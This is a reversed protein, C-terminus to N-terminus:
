QSWFFPGNRGFVNNKGFFNSFEQSFKRERTRQNRTKKRSNLSIKWFFTVNVFPETQASASHQCNPNVSAPSFPVNQGTYKASPASSFSSPNLILKHFSHQILSTKNKKNYFKCSMLVWIRVLKYVESSFAKWPKLTPPKTFMKPDAAGKDSTRTFVSHTSGTSRM